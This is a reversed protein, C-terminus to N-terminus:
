QSQKAATQLSWLVSSQYSASLRSVPKQKAEGLVRNAKEWPLVCPSPINSVWPAAEVMSYVKGCWQRGHMPGQFAKRTIGHRLRVEVPQM